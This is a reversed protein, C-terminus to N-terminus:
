PSISSWHLDLEGHDHEFHAVQASRDLELPVHAQVHGLRGAVDDQQGRVFPAARRRRNILRCSGDMVTNM